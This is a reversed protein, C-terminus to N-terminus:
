RSDPSATIVVPGNDSKGSCRRLRGGELSRVGGLFLEIATKDGRSRSSWLGTAPKRRHAKKNPILAKRAAGTQNLNRQECGPNKQANAMLSKAPQKERPEISTQPKLWMRWEVPLRERLGQDLEFFATALASREVESRAAAALVIPYLREALLRGQGDPGRALGWLFVRLEFEHGFAQLEVSRALRHPDLSGVLPEAGPTDPFGPGRSTGDRTPAAEPPVPHVTQGLRRLIAGHPLLPAEVPLRRGSPRPIPTVWLQFYHTSVTKPIIATTAVAAYCPSRHPTATCELRRDTAVRKATHCM